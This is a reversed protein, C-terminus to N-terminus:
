RPTLMRLCCVTTFRGLEMRPTRAVGGGAAAMLAEAAVAVLAGGAIERRGLM